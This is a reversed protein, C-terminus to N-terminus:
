VPPPERYERWLLYPAALGLAVWHVGLGLYAPLLHALDVYGVLYHVILTCLYGVSGAHLLTSFLWARGASFGWLTAMLTTLGCSMLMGGFTARDHAILALLRPSAQALDAACTNMFELDERVFITTSGVISIVVGAVLVAIAEIVLLLQGWQALRWRWEERLPVHQPLQRAGLPAHWALLLLQFLLTTVFAHFPELYGFGL